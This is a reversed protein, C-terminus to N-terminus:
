LLEDRKVDGVYSILLNIISRNGTIFGFIRKNNAVPVYAGLDILNWGLVTEANNVFIRRSTTYIRIRTTNIVEIYTFEAGNMLTNLGELITGGGNRLEVNTFWMSYISSFGTAYGHPDICEIEFWTWTTTDFDVITAEIYFKRLRVVSYPDRFSLSIKDILTVPVGFKYKNWAGAGGFYLEFKDWLVPYIESSVRDLGRFRDLLERGEYNWMNNYSTAIGMFHCRSGDQGMASQGKFEEVLVSVRRRNAAAGSLQGILFSFIEIEVINRITGGGGRKVSLINASNEGEVISSEIDWQVIERNNLFRAYRLDLSIYLRQLDVSPWVERVMNEIGFISRLNNIRKTDKRIIFEYIQEILKERIDYESNISRAIKRGEKAANLAVGVITRLEKAFDSDNLTNLSM